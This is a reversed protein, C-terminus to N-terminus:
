IKWWRQAIRGDDLVSGTGIKQPVGVMLHAALAVDEASPHFRFEGRGRLEAAMPLMAVDVYGDRLAEARIAPDPIVVAEISDIWGAQGDKHHSQVRSGLFRRNPDWQDVRYCGTGVPGSLPREVQGRACIALNPEALLLPLDPNGQALEFKIRLAGTAETSRVGAASLISHGRLSHIVDDATLPTGDHFSVGARLDFHWIRADASGAWGTALEGQLAGNSRVETLTELASGRALHELVRGGRPVALRLRGGTKPAANLSVGSATLLAAAAGSTFLARRDIRTM